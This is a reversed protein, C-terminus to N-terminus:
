VGPQGAGVALPSITTVCSGVVEPLRKDSPDAVVRLLEEVGKRGVPAVIGFEALHARIANIVSNQRRIFLRRTRHFALGSQQELTRIPVPRVNARTVAECIAEADVMDNKQRKVYPKVYAPPMTRVTHGLAQLERSWYRSSACGEM